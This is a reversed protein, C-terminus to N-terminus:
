LLTDGGGPNQFRWRAHPTLEVNRLSLTRSAYRDVSNKTHEERGTDDPPIIIKGAGEQPVGQAVFSFDSFMPGSHCEACQAKTFFLDLGRKQVSNLANGEGMVYQDYPSNRTVLEREYAAIARGFNLSDIIAAGPKSAIDE